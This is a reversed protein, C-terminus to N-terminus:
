STTGAAMGSGPAMALEVARELQRKARLRTAPDRSVLGVVDAGAIVLTGQGGALRFSRHWPEHPEPNMWARQPFLLLGQPVTHAAMYVAVQYADSPTLGLSASGPSLDKWKADAVLGPAGSRDVLLVDPKLPLAPVGTPVPHLLRPSRPRRELRLGAVESGQLTVRILREFVDHLSFLLGFADTQGHSIPIPVQGSRMVTALELFPKWRWEQRTLRIRDPRLQALPVHAAAGLMRDCHELAELTRPVVAERALVTVVARLTRTVVNDYQLPAFRVPIRHRESPLSRALQGFLIRGKVQPVRDSRVHYRRPVGLVLEDHLLEAFARVLSDLVRERGAMVAARSIMPAPVLGAQGLLSLLFLRRDQDTLDDSVRPLIEVQCWGFDLVGVYPGARVGDVTRRLVDSPHRAASRLLRDWDAHTVPVSSALAGHEVASFFKRRM